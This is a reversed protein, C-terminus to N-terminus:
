VLRMLKLAKQIRYEITRRSLHFQECLTALPMGYMVHQEVIERDEASLICLYPEVDIHEGEEIRLQVEDLSTTLCNNEERGSKNRVIHAHQNLYRVISGEVWPKAYTIFVCGSEPNYTQEARLLGLYGQQILDNKECCPKPCAHEHAIQEVLHQYQEILLDSGATPNNQSM